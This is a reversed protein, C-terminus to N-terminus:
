KLPRACSFTSEELVALMKKLTKSIEDKSKLYWTIRSEGMHGTFGLGGAELFKKLSPDDDKDLHLEFKGHMAIM